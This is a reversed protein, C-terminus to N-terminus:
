PLAEVRARIARQHAGVAQAHLVFDSHWGTPTEELVALMLQKAAKKVPGPRAPGGHAINDVIVQVAGWHAAWAEEISPVGRGLAQGKARTSPTPPKSTGNPM